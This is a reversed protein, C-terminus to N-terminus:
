RGIDVTCSVVLSPGQPTQLDLTLEGKLGRKRRQEAQMFCTLIPQQSAAPWALPALWVNQTSLSHTYQLINALMCHPFVRGFPQSASNEKSDGSETLRGNVKARYFYPWSPDVCAM